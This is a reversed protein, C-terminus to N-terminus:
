SLDYSSSSEGEEKKVYHRFRSYGNAVVDRDDLSFNYRKELALYLLQFDHFYCLSSAFKHMGCLAWLSYKSVKISSM